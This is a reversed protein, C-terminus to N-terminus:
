SGGAERREWGFEGAGSRKEGQVGEGGQGGKDRFFSELESTIVAVVAVLDPTLAAALLL